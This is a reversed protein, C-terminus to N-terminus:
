AKLEAQCVRMVRQMVQQRGRGFKHGMRADVALADGMGVDLHVIHQAVTIAKGQQRVVAAAAQHPRRGEVRAPKREAVQWRLAGIPRHAGPAQKTNLPTVPLRCCPHNM